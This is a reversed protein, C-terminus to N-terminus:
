IMEKGLSVIYWGLKSLEAVPEGHLEIRARESTKIKTYDSIGLVIHIPLEGKTDHDHLTIDRM